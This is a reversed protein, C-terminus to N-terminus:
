EHKYNSSPDYSTSSQFIIPANVNDDVNYVDTITHRHAPMTSSQSYDHKSMISEKNLSSENMATSHSFQAQHIPQAIPLPRITQITPLLLSQPQPPISPTVTTGGFLNPYENILQSSDSLNGTLRSLALRQNVRDIAALDEDDDSSRFLLLSAAAAAAPLAQPNSFDVLDQLGYGTGGAHGTSLQSVSTNQHQQHITAPNLLNGHFFPMVQQPYTLNQGINQNIMRHRPRSSHYHISPNSPNIVHTQLPALACDKEDDEEEDIDPDVDPDPDVGASKAVQDKDSTIGSININVDNYIQPKGTIQDNQIENIAGGIRCENDREDNNISSPKSTTYSHTSSPYLINTARVKNMKDRAADLAKHSLETLKPLWEQYIKKRPSRLFDPNLRRDLSGGSHQLIHLYNSREPHLRDFLRQGISANNISTSSPTTVMTFSSFSKISMDDNVQTINTGELNANFSMNQLIPQQIESSVDFVYSDLGSCYEYDCKSSKDDFMEGVSHRHRRINDSPEKYIEKDPPILYHLGTPADVVSSARRHVKNDFASISWHTYLSTSPSQENPIPVCKIPLRSQQMNIARDSLFSSINSTESSLIFEPLHTSENSNHIKNDDVSRSSEISSLLVGGSFPSNLTNREVELNHLETKLDTLEIGSQSIPSSNPASMHLKYPENVLSNLPNDDKVSSSIYHSKYQAYRPPSTNTTITTASDIMGVTPPNLNQIETKTETVQTNITFTDSSYPFTFFSYNSELKEEDVDEDENTEIELVPQHFSSTIQAHAGPDYLDNYQRLRQEWASMQSAESGRRYKEPLEEVNFKNQNTVCQIETNENTPTKQMWSTSSLKQQIEQLLESTLPQHCKCQLETEGSAQRVPGCNVPLSFRKQHRILQANWLGSKIDDGTQNFKKHTLKWWLGLPLRRRHSHLASFFSRQQAALLRSRSEPLQQSSSPLSQKSIECNDSNPLSSSNMSTMPAEIPDPKQTHKTNIVALSSNESEAGSNEKRYNAQEPYSGGVTIVPRHLPQLDAAGDSSRRPFSSSHPTMFEPPALLNPDKVTFCAVPQHKMPPLNAPLNLQPLLTHLVGATPDCSNVDEDEDVEASIRITSWCPDELVTPKETPLYSTNDMIANPQTNLDVSNQEPIRDLLLTEHSTLQLDTYQPPLSQNISTSEYPFGDPSTYETKSTSKAQEYHVDPLNLVAVNNCDGLSIDETIQITQSADILTKEHDILISVDDQEGGEDDTTTINTKMPPQKTTAAEQGLELSTLTQENQKNINKLYPRSSQSLHSKRYEPQTTEWTNPMWDLRTLLMQDSNESNNQNYQFRNPHPQTIQRPFRRVTTRKTNSGNNNDDIVNCNNNVNVDTFEPSKESEANSTVVSITNVTATSSHRNNLNDIDNNNSLANELNDRHNSPKRFLSTAFQLTHRRTSNSFSKDMPASNIGFSSLIEDEDAKLICIAADLETNKPQTVCKWERSSSERFDKKSNTVTENRENHICIDKSKEHSSPTIAVTNMMTTATNTGNTCSLSSHDKMPVDSSDSSDSSMNIDSQPPTQEELMIEDLVGLVTTSQTTSTTTNLRNKVIQEGSPNCEGLINSTPQWALRQNHRQTSSQKIFTSSQKKTEDNVFKRLIPNRYFIKIKEKLLEYAAHYRDYKRQITSHRIQEEDLGAESSLAKMIGVDLKLDIRELFEEEAIKSHEPHQHRFLVEFQREKVQLHYKNILSKYHEVNPSEQMWATTMVQRLKYRRIPDVQLMCRIVQECSTSLYFPFRVLGRLVQTRIDGLSEGPFPFSGCVLIYLIVGLSWVDALTGDYPEGKFLEPAAYQPSGCHTSLLQDNQFFNCFGFDAVKIKFDADLLLNEAKLDRHVIGSAHCFEIACVIQWFLERAEKETFAHSLSIHDFVEGKSAYETVMFINSETEMVHYLRIIHPHQCRKMAELERSVKGLNKSGILDKNMIKIAVKVSLQSHKGLKVVAFNGRGLTPGLYYPGIRQSANSQVTNSNNNPEPLNCSYMVTPMGCISTRPVASQVTADALQKRSNDSNYVQRSEEITSPSNVNTVAQKNKTFSAAFNPITQKDTVNVNIDSKFLTQSFQACLSDSHIPCILRPWLNPPILQLPFNHNFRPLNIQVSNNHASPEALNLNSQATTQSLISVLDNNSVPVSPTSMQVDIQNSSDGYSKHAALLTAYQLQESSQTSSETYLARRMVQNMMATLAVSPLPHLDVSGFRKERAETEETSSSASSSCRTGRNFVSSHAPKFKGSGSSGHKNGDSQSGGSTGGTTASGTSSSDQPPPLHPRNGHHHRVASVPSSFILKDSSVTTTHVSRAAYNNTKTPLSEHDVSVPIELNYEDAESYGSQPFMIEDQEMQRCLQPPHRRQQLVENKDKSNAM